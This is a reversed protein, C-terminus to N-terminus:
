ATDHYSKGNLTWKEMAGQGEFKSEIVLPIEHIAQSTEPAPSIAGFQEYDWQLNVPQQWIPKGTANAYEIFIGMGADQIHKRVEGFVWTGPNNMDVIATVREAPALRLMPAAQSTPATNGDLAIVQFTHGSLAIWHVETPSSNLIHFLIKQGSKVRLPEAFGLMRGNITSIFYTPSMAGDDSALFQGDWDHLTLFFEQDYRGPNEKPEVFLIGHQGTYQGRKM